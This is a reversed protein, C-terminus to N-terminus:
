TTAIVAEAALADIEQESFGAVRLFEKSAAGREPARGQCTPRFGGFSVPQFSERGAAAASLPLVPELCCDTRAALAAWDAM